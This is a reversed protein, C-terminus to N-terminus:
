FVVAHIEIIKVADRKYNENFSNIVKRQLEEMKIRSDFNHQAKEEIDKDFKMTTQLQENSLEKITNHLLENDYLLLDFEAIELKIYNERKNIELLKDLSQELLYKQNYLHKEKKWKFSQLEETILTDTMIIQQIKSESKDRLKLTMKKEEKLQNELEILKNKLKALESARTDQTPM